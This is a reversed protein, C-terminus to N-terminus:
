DWGAAKRFNRSCIKQLKKLLTSEISWNSEGFGYIFFIIKILFFLLCYIPKKSKKKWKKKETKIAKPLLYCFVRFIDRM